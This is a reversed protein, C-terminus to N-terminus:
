FFLSIEGHIYLMCGYAVQINKEEKAFVQLRIAKLNWLLEERKFVIEIGSVLWMVKTEDQTLSQNKGLSEVNVM